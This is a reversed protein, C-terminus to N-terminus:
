IDATTQEQELWGHELTHRLQRNYPFEPHASLHAELRQCQSPNLPIHSAARRRLLEPTVALTLPIHRSVQWAIRYGDLDTDGWHCATLGAQAFLHLLRCVADNPYGETYLAPRRSEVLRLFPAANESTTITTCPEPLEVAKMNRISQWSLTAAEGRLWLAHPWDLRAGDSTTYAFPIFVVAQTTYPNEVINNNRLLNAPDDTSAGNILQLLAELCQRLPGSRLAKSDKFFLAGLESLTIADSRQRLHIIAAVLAQLESAANASNKFLREPLSSTRLTAILQLELPYLLSLRQLEREMAAKHDAVCIDPAEEGLLAALPQWWSCHRQSPELRVILRGKSERHGHFIRELALLIGRREPMTGLTLTAPMQRRGDLSM